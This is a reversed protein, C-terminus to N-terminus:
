KNQQKGMRYALYSNFALFVWVIVFFWFLIKLFINDWWSMYTERRELMKFGVENRFLDRGIISEIIFPVKKNSKSDRLFTIKVADQENLMLDVRDTYEKFQDYSLPKDLGPTELGVDKMSISFQHPYNKLSFIYKAQFVVKETISLPITDKRSSVLFTDKRIAKQKFSKHLKKWTEENLPAITDKYQSLHGFNLPEIIKIFKAKEDESLDKHFERWLRNNISAFGHVETTPTPGILEGEVVGLVKDFEKQDKYNWSLVVTIFFITFIIFKSLFPNKM